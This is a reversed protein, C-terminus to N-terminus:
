LLVTSLTAVQHMGLRDYMRRAPTNFDNVYLSVTPALTLARRLVAAFAATGLGQGRLDPRVWVGQLQCTRPSVAGVDTKFAVSGDPDLVGFARGDRILGAVRARYRSADATDYPSVGLEESFMAASAPLYAALETPAMMRLRTFGPHSEVPGSTMLLPQTPRHARAPGWVPALTRWLVSVADAAGVVSSCVRRREALHRALATWEDPGGGIPLLNGGSFAAATLRGHAGRVGLMTGGIRRPSLSSLAHLRAGVVANVIPDLEVLAVLESRDADGLEHVRLPAPQALESDAHLLSSM